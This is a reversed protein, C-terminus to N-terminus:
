YVVVKINKGFLATLYSKIAYVENEYDSFCDYEYVEENSIGIVSMADREGKKIYCKYIVRDTHHKLWVHVELKKKKM